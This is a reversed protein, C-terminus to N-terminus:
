LLGKNKALWEAVVLTGEDGEDSLECDVAIQSRPFWYDQGDIDVLIALKTAKVVRVGDFEVKEMGGQKWSM